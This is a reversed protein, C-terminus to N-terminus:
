IMSKVRKVVKRIIKNLFNSIKQVVLDIKDVNKNPNEKIIQKELIAEESWIRLKKDKAKQEEKKLEDVYLYDNYVYKVEAYGLRVLDKQLLKDDVFVWVLLRGYNDEKNSKPDYEIEIKKAKKLKNCTYNSAQKGYPEVPSNEKVSEPTNVGLFRTKKSEKKVKFVATDGDVCRDLTVKIKESANIRIPFILIMVFLFTIIKHKM